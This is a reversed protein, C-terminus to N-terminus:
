LTSQRGQPLERNHYTWGQQTDSCAAPLSSPHASMKRGVCMWKM